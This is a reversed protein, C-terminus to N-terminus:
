FDAMKGFVLNLVIINIGLSCIYRQVAQLSCHKLDFIICNNKVIDTNNQLALSNM